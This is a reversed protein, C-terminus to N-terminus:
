ENKLAEKLQKYVEGAGIVDWNGSSPPNDKWHYCTIFRKAQICAATLREIDEKLYHIGDAYDGKYPVNVLEDEIRKLVRDSEVIEAQKTKVENFWHEITKNFEGTQTIIEKHQREIEAQQDKVQEQLGNIIEQKQECANKYDDIRSQQREIEERMCLCDEFLNYIAEETPTDILTQYHQKEHWYKLESM